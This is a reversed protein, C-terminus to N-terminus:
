MRLDRAGQLGIHAKSGGIAGFQAVSHEPRILCFFKPTGCDLALRTTEHKFIQVGTWALFTPAELGDASGTAFPLEIVARREHRPGLTIPGREASTSEILSWSLAHCLNYHMNYGQRDKIRVEM